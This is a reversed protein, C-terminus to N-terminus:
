LSYDSDEGEYDESDYYEEEYDGTDYDETDYYETDYDETDYDDTGYYEEEFADWDTDESYADDTGQSFASLSTDAIEGQISQVANQILEKIQEVDMGTADAIKQSITDTNSLLDQAYQTVQENDMADYVVDSDEPLRFSLEKSEETKVSIAAWEEGSVELAVRVSSETKKQDVTVNIAYGSYEPMSVSITGSMYGDESIKLDKTKFNLTSSKEDGSINLTYEGSVGGNSVDGSGTLAFYDKGNVGIAFDTGMKGGSQPNLCHYSIKGGDYSFEIERGAIDGEDDVYIDMNLTGNISVTDDAEMQEIATDLSSAYQEALNEETSELDDMEDLFNNIMEDEKLVKLEDKLIEKMAKGDASVSLKTYKASVGSAELTAEEKTAEGMGKYLTETVNKLLQTVEKTEPMIEMCQTYVAMADESSEQMTAIASSLDLYSDSLEPVKIYSKSDALDMFLDCSLIQTDNVDAAYEVTYASDEVSAGVRVAASDLSSIESAYSSLLTKLTDGLEVKVTAKKGYNGSKMLGFARDYRDEVIDLSQKLNDSEVKQYYETPSQFNKNVINLIKDKMFFGVLGVAAVGVGIAAPIIIKKKSKKGNEATNNGFQFGPQINSQQMPQGFAMQGQDPVTSQEATMQGQDPVTPQETTIQEQPAIPQEATMQEQEPAAPQEPTMQGQDPTEDLQSAGCFPCFKTNDNITQNCKKCIM